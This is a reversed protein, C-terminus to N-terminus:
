VLAKDTTTLKKFSEVSMTVYHDCHPMFPSTIHPQNSIIASDTYYVTHVHTCTHTHSLPSLYSFIFIIIKPLCLCPYKFGHFTFLINSVEHMDSKYIFVITEQEFHSDM